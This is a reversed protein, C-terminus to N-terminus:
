CSPAMETPLSSGPPAVLLLLLLLLAAVAVLAPLGLFDDVVLDRARGLGFHDFAALDVADRDRHQDIADVALVVLALHDILGAGLFLSSRMAASTRMASRSRGSAHRGSRLPWGATRRLAPWRMMLSGVPKM